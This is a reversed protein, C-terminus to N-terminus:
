LVLVFVFSKLDLKIREIDLRVWEGGLGKGLWILVFGLLVVGYFGM